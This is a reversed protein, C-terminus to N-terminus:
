IKKDVSDACYVVEVTTHVLNEIEELRKIYDGAPLDQSTTITLMCAYRDHHVRLLHIDQVKSIGDREISNIIRQV